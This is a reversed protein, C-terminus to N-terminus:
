EGIAYTAAWTSLFDGGGNLLTTDVQIVLALVNAGALTDTAPSGQDDSSTLLGVLVGSTAADVGPCGDDDFTLSPAAAIVAAVANGFGALEFFFPDNRLGAYVRIKGSDSWIGAPDSPDGRLYEDGAWCEIGTGDANYFRCMIKWPTEEAGYGAMSSVHAAYVTADSWMSDTTAFPNVAIVMNMSSADSTMWAFYDTIDAAPTAVATPSDIHDAAHSNSVGLLMVCVAASFSFFRRM